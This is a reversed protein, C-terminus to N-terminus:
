QQATDNFVQWATSIMNKLLNCNGGETVEIINYIDQALRFTVPEGTRPFMRRKLEATQGYPIDSKTQKLYYFYQDRIRELDCESSAYYRNYM